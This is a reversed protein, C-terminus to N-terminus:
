STLLRGGSWNFICIQFELGKANHFTMLYLYDKQNEENNTSATETLLSISQLYDALSPEKKKSLEETYNELDISEDDYAYVEAECSKEYEKISNIFESLNELRNNAESSNAEKLSAQYGSEELIDKAIKSPLEKDKVSKQWKKFLQSLEILKQYSRLKNINTEKSITELLSQKEKKMINKLEELSKQGIGRIPVNIIREFSLDDEPNVIVSLYALLDRIEKRDYFRIDGVLLYPINNERLVSEFIRSQANTRYFIAMDNLVHGDRQYSLIKQVINHVEDMENIYSLCSVNALENSLESFITKPRRELNNAILKSAIKLIIPASRYNQELKLIKANPYDKNFNLINKITAGRWSYIAQDDDGVVMINKHEQSILKGLLYQSYNTDQYEDILFYKWLNQYYRKIESNDKLLKVPEYLLDGFDVCNNKRLHEIYKKYLYSFEEADLSDMKLCDEPSQMQDRAKQIRSMLIQPGWQASEMKEEKLINKLLTNQGRTNLISFGSKLNLAEFHRQLIYLGLSHFTRVFINKAISGLLTELREKMEASAKNTFTVASINWPKVQHESILHAIRHTIVRTKGSGAGAVILLPGSVHSAGERQVSNLSTLFSESM